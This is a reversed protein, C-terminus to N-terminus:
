PIHRDQLPQALRQLWGAVIALEAPSLDQALMANFAHTRELAQARVTEAQRTLRLRSMRADAPERDRLVLGLRELRQVLTSAASQALDLSQALAGITIGEVPHMAFLAGAQTPTIGLDALGAQALDAVRRQAMSLLYILRTDM